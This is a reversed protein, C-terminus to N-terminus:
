CGPLVGFLLMRCVSRKWSPRNSRPTSDSQGTFVGSTQGPDPRIEIAGAQESQVEIIPPMGGLHRDGSREAELRRQEQALANARFQEIIKARAEAENAASATQQKSPPQHPSGMDRGGVHGQGNSRAKLTRDRVEARGARVRSQHKAEDGSRRDSADDKKRPRVRQVNRKGRLSTAPKELVGPVGTVKGPEDWPINTPGRPLDSRQGSKFDYTELRGGQEYRITQAASGSVFAFLTLVVAAVKVVLV